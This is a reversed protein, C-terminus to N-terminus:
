PYFNGGVSFLLLTYLVWFFRRERLVLLFFPLAFYLTALFFFRYFRVRGAFSDWFTGFTDASAGHTQAQIEYDLQQERTLERHPIPNPQVTFTAPLREVVV